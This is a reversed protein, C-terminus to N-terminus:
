KSAMTVPVAQLKQSLLEPQDSERSNGYVLSVGLQPLNLSRVVWQSGARTLFLASKGPKSDGFTGAIVIVATKGDESRVVAQTPTQTSRVTITYDGPTLVAQGWKVTDHLQFTGRFATQANATGALSLALLLVFLGSRLSMGNQITKM